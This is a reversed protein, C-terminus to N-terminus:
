MCLHCTAIYVNIKYIHLCTCKWACTEKVIYLLLHARMLIIKRQRHTHANYWYYIRLLSVNGHRLLDVVFKFLSPCLVDNNLIRMVRTIGFFKMEFMQNSYLKVIYLVLQWKIHLKACSLYINAYLSSFM